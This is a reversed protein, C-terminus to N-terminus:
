FSLVRARSARTGDRFTLPFVPTATPIGEWREPLRVSRSVRDLRAPRRTAPCAAQDVRPLVGRSVM